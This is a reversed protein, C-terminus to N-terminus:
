FVRHLLTAGSALVLAAADRPADLPRVLGLSGCNQVRSLRLLAAILADAVPKPDIVDFCILREVHLVPRDAFRPAIAYLLVGQSRGGADRAILIGGTEDAAGIQRAAKTRWSELSLDEYGLRVLVYADDIDADALPQVSM